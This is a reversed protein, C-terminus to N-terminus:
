TFKVRLMEIGHDEMQLISKQEIINCLTETEHEYFTADDKNENLDIIPNSLYLEPPNLEIEAYYPEVLSNNIVIHSTNYYVNILSNDYQVDGSHACEAVPVHHTNTLIGVPHVAETKSTETLQKKVWNCSHKNVTSRHAYHKGCKKCTYPKEGTHTRQHERMHSKTTFCKRCERCQFPKEGTHYRKHEVLINRYKFKKNCIDCHYTAIGHHKVKIHEELASKRTFWKGCLNCQFEKGTHIRVHKTLDSKRTFRWGCYVCRHPREGSHIKLHEWLHKSHFFGKGCKTCIHKRSGDHMASQEKLTNDESENIVAENDEVVDNRTINQSSDDGPTPVYEQRLMEEYGDVGTNMKLAHEKTVMSCDQTDISSVLIVPSVDESFCMQIHEDQQQLDRQMQINEDVIPHNEATLVLESVKALHTTEVTPTTCSSSTTENVNVPMGNSDFDNSFGIKSRKTNTMKVWSIPESNIGTRESLGKMHMSLNKREWACAHKKASSKHAFYKMCRLCQYPKEGTHTRKHENLHTKTTFRRQCVECQYPKEGTHYRVHEILCRKWTFTKGCLHCTHLCEGSHTKVHVDHDWKRTFKKECIHCQFEKGTHIRIHKTLDSKRTFRWGCYTCQHAREGTHIKLHQQLHWKKSFAKGCHECTPIEENIGESTIKDAVDHSRLHLEYVNRNIFDTQNCRKCHFETTLLKLHSEVDDLTIAKISNKDSM